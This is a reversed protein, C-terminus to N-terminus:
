ARQQEGILGPGPDGKLLELRTEKEFRGIEISGLIGHYWSPLSSNFFWVELRLHVEAQRSPEKAARRLESKLRVQRLIVKRLFDCVKCGGDASYQLLPLDPLVDAVDYRVPISRPTSTNTIASFDVRLSM